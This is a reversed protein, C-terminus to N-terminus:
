RTRLLELLDESTLKVGGDAGELLSDALDRKQAHLQLIKDEITEETILRYITVPRKQGIRHARDSAQDEVAPNWWPDMHIVYDAATLNLGVGGAKLSILFVDGKGAQFQTMAKERDKLSTQGDLYQYSIKKEQLYAELIRLHGVFQSFVLAKHGNDLLEELTEGFLQLKASSITSTDDVLKPNCCARRLRMIEALIRMQKQGEGDNQNENTLKELANRRLAEYFAREAESLQVTLTIETRSPLEQLVENKRRRLLFPSILKRLANKVDKDNNREIPNAFRENFYPLTGLLGPNIFNFISWLEGLHNEVPTGTTVIRFDGNLDMAAKTRKAAANKIAQAEDLVITTFKKKMLMESEQQMLGYSCVLLDFPELSDIIDQRNNKGFLIPNLTPAFREAERMWNISVSSPAVILTPGESARTLILALAQITKGLGMDDALCAGVGWHALQSLWQFGDNQYNRLEAQFTSPVEAKHKRAEKLRKIQKRWAADTELNQMDSTMEEMAPSLLPNFRLGDKTTQVMAAMEQLRKQLQKTLALYNGDSLEIFQSDKQMLGMIQQMTLVLNENVRIEGSVGFWDKDKQINMKFEGFGAVKALRFKEGKPWEIALARNERLPAIELLVQLASETDELSCEYNSSFSNNLTPSQELIADANKKEQKLNRLAITKKTNFDAILNASGKGPKTYPPQTGFPKVFLEIRFGEGVPLLHLIPTTDGEIQPLNSDGEIASQVTVINSIGSMIQSLKAKGAKPVKLAKGGIATSINVHEKRAELLNYRTPTEKQLLIGPEKITYPFKVVFNKGVEEITLEWEKKVLEVSVGPSSELYLNPHGVLALFIQDGDYEYSSGGYYGHNVLTYARSAKMDQPTACLIEGAVLRKIAVNRGKSWTTKGMTQEIPQVNQKEFDVIWALRAGGEVKAKGGTTANGVFLLADLAREWDETMKVSNIISEVGLETELRTAEKEYSPDETIKSLLTAFEFALWQYDNQTARKYYKKFVAIMSDNISYKTWYLALGYFLNDYGGDPHTQQLTSHALDKRNQLFLTVAQIYKYIKEYIPSIPKSIITDVKKLEPTDGKLLALLYYPGHAGSFYVNKGFEKRANKLAVEYAAIAKLTDGKLYKVWAQRSLQQHSHAEKELLHNIKGQTIEIIELIHRMGVAENTVYSENTVMPSNKLFTGVEKINEFEFFSAIFLANIVKFQMEEPLSSVFAPEFPTSFHHILEDEKFISGYYSFRKYELVLENYRPMEGCYIAIYMERLLAEPSRANAWHGTGNKYPFSADLYGKYRLIKTKGLLRMMFSHYQLNFRTAAGNQQLFTKTLLTSILVKYDLPKINMGKEDKFGAFNLTAIGTTQNISEYAVAFMNIMRQEIKSLANYAAIFDERTKYM